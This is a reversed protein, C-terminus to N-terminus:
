QQPGTREDRLILSEWLLHTKKNPSFLYADVSDEIRSCPFRGSAAAANTEDCFRDDSTVEGSRYWRSCDYKGDLWLKNNLMNQAIAQVFDKRCGTFVSLYCVDTNELCAAAFLVVQVAFFPCYPGVEPYKHNLYRVMQRLNWKFKLNRM